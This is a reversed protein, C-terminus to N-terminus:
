HIYQHRFFVKTDYPLPITKFFWCWFKSYVVLVTFLTRFSSSQKRYIACLRKPVNAGFVGYVADLLRWCQETCPDKFKKFFYSFSFNLVSNLFICFQVQSGDREWASAVRQSPSVVPTRRWFLELALNNSAWYYDFVSCFGLLEGDNAAMCQYTIPSDQLSAIM